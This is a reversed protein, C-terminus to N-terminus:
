RGIPRSPESGKIENACCTHFATIIKSQAEPDLRTSLTSSGVMDCFMITLQRREASSAPTTPPTPRPGTSPAVSLTSPAFGSGCESCFRAQASNPHGCRLCVCPLASGCHECFKGGENLSKALAASSAYSIRAKKGTEKQWQANIADLANKLSAAAFILVDAGQAQASGWAALAAVIDALRCLHCRWPDTL